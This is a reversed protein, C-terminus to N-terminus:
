DESSRTEPPSNKQRWPKATHTYAQRMQNEIHRSHIRPIFTHNYGMKVEVSSLPSHDVKV